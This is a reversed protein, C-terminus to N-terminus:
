HCRWFSLSIMPFSIIMILLSLIIITQLNWTMALNIHNSSKKEDPTTPEFQRTTTLQEDTGHSQTSQSEDTVLQTEPTTPEFQRTTTLQEDTGHSQTNESEDTVPQTQTLETVSLADNIRLSLTNYQSYYGIKVLETSSLRMIVATKDIGGFCAVVAKDIGTYVKSLTQKHKNCLETLNANKSERLHIDFVGKVLNPPEDFSIIDTIWKDSKLISATELSVKLSGFWDESPLAQQMQSHSMALLVMINSSTNLRYPDLEPIDCSMPISNFTPEIRKLVEKVDECLNDLIELFRHDSKDYDGIVLPKVSLNIEAVLIESEVNALQVETVGFLFRWFLVSRSSLYGKELLKEHSVKLQIAKKSKIFSCKEVTEQLGPYLHSVQDELENCWDTHLEKSSVTYSLTYEANKWEKKTVSVIATPWKDNIQIAGPKVSQKFSRFWNKSSFANEVEISSMMLHITVDLGTVNQNLHLPIECSLVVSSLRPEMIKVVDKVDQCYEDLLELSAESNRTIVAENWDRVSLVLEVSTIEPIKSKGVNKSNTPVRGQASVKDLTNYGFLLLILPIVVLSVVSRM